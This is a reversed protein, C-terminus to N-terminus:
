DGRTPPATGEGPRILRYGFEPRGSEGRIEDEVIVGAELGKATVLREFDVDGIRAATVRLPEGMAIAASPFPFPLPPRSLPRHGHAEDRDEGSAYWRAIASRLTNRTWHEGVGIEDLAQILTGKDALTEAADEIELRVAQERTSSWWALLGLATAYVGFIAFSPVSDIGGPRRGNRRVGDVATRSSDARAAQLLPGTATRVLDMVTDIPVLAASSAGAQAIDRATNLERALEPNPAVGSDPHVVKMQSRYAADIAERSAGVDLELKSLAEKRNV